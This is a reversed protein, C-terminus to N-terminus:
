KLRNYILELQKQTNVFTVSQGNLLVNEFNMNQADIRITDIPKLVEFQYSAQGLVKKQSLDFGITASVKKFDVSKTQQGFVLTTVLFLFFRTMTLYTSLKLTMFDFTQTKTILNQSVSIRM